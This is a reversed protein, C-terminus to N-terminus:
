QQTVPARMRSTSASGQGRLSYIAVYNSSTAVFVKGAVITPPCFKAFNGFYPETDNRSDFLLALNSADFVQFVGETRATAVADHDKPRTAWVLGTGPKEGSASVALIGGPGAPMRGSPYDTYGCNTEPGSTAVAAAPDFLGKARSFRFMRLYDNEGWIYVLVDDSRQWCVPAGDIHHHDAPDFGTCIRRGEDITAAAQFSQVEGGPRFRGMTDTGSTDLVHMLGRKGGAILRKIGPLVLPGGALDKDHMNDAVFGQPTFWDVVELDPSLKVASDGLDVGPAPAPSVPCAEMRFTCGFEANSNGTLVYINGAEDTAPGQGSQWIGGYAAKPTANFVDRRALTRADYSIVWGHYDGLDGLSGFAIYLRGNALLLAPRQLHFGSVFGPADIVVPGQRTRLTRTDLAYLRFQRKGALDPTCTVLFLASSSPDIVPTSLIGITPLSSSGAAPPDLPGRMMLLGANSDPDLNDADFAYVKNTMTAVYLVNRVGHGPVRVHPLYLPQAYIDGDVARVCRRGFTQQKVTSPSLVQEQLMAGTRYTDNHQTLVSPHLHRALRRRQTASAVSAFPDLIPAGILAAASGILFGRRAVTTSDSSSLVLPDRNLSQHAPPGWSRTPM